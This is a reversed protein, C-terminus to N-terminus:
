KINKVIGRRYPLIERKILIYNEYTSNEIYERGDITTTGSTIYVKKEDKKVKKESELIAKLEKLVKSISVTSYFIGNDNNEM